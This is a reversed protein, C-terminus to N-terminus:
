NQYEELLPDTFRLYKGSLDTPIGKLALNAYVAAPVEPPHLKNEEKLDTFRKHADPKMNQGFVNRIDEQMQTDVVGPAISISSIDSEESDLSQSFHNLAAKSAGYAAWGDYSTVSAGSSVFIVNGKTKRLFEVSKSVLDVISFFNVDFLQKYGPVDAKAIPGVPDLKGANLILCDISGYTEITKKIIIDASNPEALDAAIPLIDRSSYENVLSDLKDKSRAVAVLKTSPDKLVKHAIALGIGRSAGTLIIVAM